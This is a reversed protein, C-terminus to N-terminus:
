HRTAAPAPGALDAILGSWFAEDQAGAIVYDNGLVFSPTAAIGRERAHAERAAITDRDADTALLRRVLAPNMGADAAIDALTDAHGLDRGECWYGRMLASMAETQCGELGAWHLLRHADTTNPVRRIAALNLPVSLAQAAEILPLDARPADAGFRARLYAQREMGAAPLTPNLQFPQWVLVFPHDPRAALARELRTKAILSWPCVPDAFIDLSIM